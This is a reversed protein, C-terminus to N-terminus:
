RDGKKSMWGRVLAIGIAVAIFPGTIYITKPRYVFLGVVMTCAVMLLAGGPAKRIAEVAPWALWMCVLVLGVKSFTDSALWRQGDWIAPAFRMSLGLSLLVVGFILAMWRPLSNGSQSM